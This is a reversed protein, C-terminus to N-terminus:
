YGVVGATSSIPNWAQYERWVFKQTFTEPERTDWCQKGFCNSELFFFWNRFIGKRKGSEAFIKAFSNETKEDCPIKGELESLKNHLSDSSCKWDTMKITNPNCQYSFKSLFLPFFKYKAM